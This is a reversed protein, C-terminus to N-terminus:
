ALAVAEEWLKHNRKKLAALYKADDYARKDQWCRFLIRIWKFALARVAAFHGKGKQKQQQYFAKAWGCHMVSQSSYEIFSQHLFRPCAYRRQV